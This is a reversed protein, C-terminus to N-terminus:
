ATTSPQRPIHRPLDERQRGVLRHGPDTTGRSIAPGPSVSRDGSFRMWLSRGGRDAHSHINSRTQDIKTAPDRPRTPRDAKPSMPIGHWTSPPGARRCPAHRRPSSVDRERISKSDDAAFTASSSGVVIATVPPPAPSRLTMKKGCEQDVPPVRFSDDTASQFNRVAAPASRLLARSIAHVVGRNPHGFLFRDMGLVIEPCRSPHGCTVARAPMPPRRPRPTRRRPRGAM